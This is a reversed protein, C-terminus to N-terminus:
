KCEPLYLKKFVDNATGKVAGTAGSNDRLLVCDDNEKLGNIEAIHGHRIYSEGTYPVHKLDLHWLDQGTAIHCLEFFAWECPNMFKAAEGAVVWAASGLTVAVPLLVLAAATRLNM